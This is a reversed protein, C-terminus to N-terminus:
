CRGRLDARCREATVKSVVTVKSGGQVCGELLSGSFVAVTTLSHNVHQEVDCDTDLCLFLPLM